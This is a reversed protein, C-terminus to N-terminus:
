RLRLKQLLKDNHEKSWPKAVLKRHFFEMLVRRDRGYFHIHCEVQVISNCKCHPLPSSQRMSVFENAAQTRGGVTPVAYNIFIQHAITETLGVVPWYM